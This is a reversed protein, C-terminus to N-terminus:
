KSTYVNKDFMSPLKIWNESSGLDTHMDGVSLVFNYELIEKAKTKKEMETFVLKDAFISNKLLQDKTNIVNEEFHPRATIIVMKYGLSKSVQFLYIMEPIPTGDTKLLTDDIDFMVADNEAVVRESICELGFTLAKEM